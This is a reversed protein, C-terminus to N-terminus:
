AADPHRPESGRLGLLTRWYTVWYAVVGGAYVLAVLWVTLEKGSWGMFYFLGSIALVAVGAKGWANPRGMVGRAFLLVCVLVVGVLDRVVIFLALWLPYDRYQVLLYLGALLAVKDALPDLYRGLPTEEHRRRALYGDFFDTAIMALLVLLVLVSTAGDPDAAMLLWLPVVLAVRLLSLGNSVTLLRHSFVERFTM